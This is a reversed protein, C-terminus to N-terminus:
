ELESLAARFQWDLVLERDVKTLAKGRQCDALTVQEWRDARKKDSDVGGLM